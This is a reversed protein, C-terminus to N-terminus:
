ESSHGFSCSRITIGGDAAVISDSRAVLRTGCRSSTRIEPRSAVDSSTEVRAMSDGLASILERRDAPGLGYTDAVLRLRKPRDPDLWGLRAANVDDDIPVCMRAFSAVDVVPRGPAAFDFDLLGVAIGGRFVVNELCIDNHCIVPGGRPDAMETSWAMDTADFQRSADHFRRILLTIGVLADDLQAWAPYPPLAVQGEIFKLREWGNPDVGVPLPAGDFGSSPLATLLKHISTSYPNTPRFVYPGRRIVAGSNAVGAELVEDGM